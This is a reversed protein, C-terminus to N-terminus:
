WDSRLISDLTPNGCSFVGNVMNKACMVSGTGGQKVSAEFAPLYIEHLTREDIIENITSRNTEQNNAAYHKANAIVGRSQIGGIDGVTIQAALFPDEGYAEFTRGNVPVRAINIDPGELLNRGQNVTERGEVVGYRRAQAPDWTAALGIPAPLATAPFQVPGGTSVGASGNNLRLAPVCLRAIPPTERSHTADLMSATEQVKEDLTMQALVLSAREDPSKSPDMWSAGACGGPGDGPSDGPSDGGTQAAAPPALTLTWACAVVLGITSRWLRRM